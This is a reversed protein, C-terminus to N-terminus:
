PKPRRPRNAKRIQPPSRRDDKTQGRNRLSPREPWLGRGSLTEEIDRVYGTLVLASDRCWRFDALLGRKAEILKQARTHGLGTVPMVITETEGRKYGWLPSHLADNRADEIKTAQGNIWRIEALVKASLESDHGFSDQAAGELIDRQARDNKLAHWVALFQNSFGGGMVSCFLLAMASHLGNWALAIQGLAATYPRFAPHSYSVSDWPRKAGRKTAM